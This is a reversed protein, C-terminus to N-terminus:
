KLASVKQSLEFDKEFERNQNLKCKFVFRLYGKDQISFDEEINEFINVINAPLNNKLFKEREVSNQVSSYNEIFDEFNKSTVDGYFMDTIFSDEELGFEDYSSVGIFLKKIDFKEDDPLEFSYTGFDGKAKLYTIVLTNEGVLLEENAPCCYRTTNLNELDSVKYKAKKGDATITLKSASPVAGFTHAFNDIEIYPIVEGQYEIGEGYKQMVANKTKLAKILEASLLGGCMEGGKGEIQILVQKM